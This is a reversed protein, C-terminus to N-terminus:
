AKIGWRIKSYLVLLSVTKQNPTCLYSVKSNSGFNNLVKKRKLVEKYEEKGGSVWNNLSCRSKWFRVAFICVMWWEMWNKEGLDMSFQLFISASKVRSFVNKSLAAAFIPLLSYWVSILIILLCFNNFIDQPIHLTKWFSGMRQFLIVVNQM